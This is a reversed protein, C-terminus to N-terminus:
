KSQPSTGSPSDRNGCRCFNLGCASFPTLCFHCLEAETAKHILENSRRVQNVGYKTAPRDPDYLAEILQSPPPHMIVELTNKFGSGEQLSRSADVGFPVFSGVNNVLVIGNIKM